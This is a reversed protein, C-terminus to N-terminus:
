SPARGLHCGPLLLSLSKGRSEWLTEQLVSSPLTCLGLQAFSLNMRSFADYFLIDTLSGSDVMIWKVPHKAISIEVVMADNNVNENEFERERVFSLVNELSEGGQTRKPAREIGWCIM